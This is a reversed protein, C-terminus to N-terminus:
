GRRAAKGSRWGEAVFLGAVLAVTILSVALGWGIIPPQYEFTYRHTGPAADVSVVGEYRSAATARGDDARVYWGPYFTEVVVVRDGAQATATVVVRGPELTDVVAPRVIDAKPAGDPPLVFAYPLAAAYELIDVGEVTSLLRYGDQLFAQGMGGPVLMYRGQVPLSSLPVPLNPSSTLRLPLRIQPVAPSGWPYWGYYSDLVKMRSTLLNYQVNTRKPSVGPPREYIQVYYVGPDYQRLWTIARRLGEELQSNVGQDPLPSSTAVVYGNAVLVTLIGVALIGGRVYALGGAPRWFSFGIASLVALSCTTLVLARLPVRSMELFPIVGVLWHFPSYPYAQGVLLVSVVGLAAFEFIHRRAERQRWAYYLLPLGLVPALGLFAYADGYSSGFGALNPPRLLDKLTGYIDDSGYFPANFHAITPILQLSPLLRVAALGFALALIGGYLGVSSLVPRWSRAETGVVTAYVVVVTSVGVLAYWLFYYNGAFVPAAISLAALAIWLVRKSRLAMLTFALSFPIWPYALIFALQGETIKSALNGSLMVLAACWLRLPPSVGAVRALTWQGVGILFLSLVIAMKLGPIVGFAVVPVLAVPYLFHAIPDALYPQGTTYYPNWLPLRGALVSERVFPYPAANTDFDGGLPLVDGPRLLVPLSYLLALLALAVIQFRPSCLFEALRGTRMNPVTYCM